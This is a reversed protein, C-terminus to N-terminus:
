SQPFDQWTGIVRGVECVGSTGGCTGGFNGGDDNESADSFLVSLIHKNYRIQLTGNSISVGTDAAFVGYVLASGNIDIGGTTGNNDKDFSYIVGFVTAGGRLITQGEEVIVIVARTEFADTTPDDMNGVIVNSSITCDGEIWYIGESQANLSSCESFVHGNSTAIDYLEVWDARPTGFLYEFLDDPFNGGASVFPDEDVIDTGKGGATSSERADLTGSCSCNTPECLQKDADNNPTIGGNVLYGDLQCTGTAAGSLNILEHAWISVDVGVGAGNSNGIIELSGSITATGGTIFPVDILDNSRGVPSYYSVLIQTDSVGAGDASLGNSQITIPRLKDDASIVTSYSANNALTGTLTNSYVTGAGPDIGAEILGKNHKIFRLANEMGAESAAFAEKQRVDSASIRQERIGVRNAFISILLILFSVVVVMLLTTAGKHCSFPRNNNIKMKIEKSGSM